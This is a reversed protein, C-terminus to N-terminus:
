FNTDPNSTYLVHRMIGNHSPTNPPYESVKKKKVVLVIRTMWRAQLTKDAETLRQNRANL